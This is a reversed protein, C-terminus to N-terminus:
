AYQGKENRRYNSHKRRGTYDSTEGRQRQRRDGRVIKSITQFAVGFMNGVEQQTYEGTAYMKRIKAVDDDSLKAAPNKEGHEDSLGTRYAHKANESYTVIELNDPHNDHKIGNKHNICLGDPIDGFFHQWVLRHASGHIRVSDVMVRVQRYGSPLLFDAQRPECRTVSVTGNRRATRNQLRWISGDERVELYGSEVLKIIKREAQRHNSPVKM